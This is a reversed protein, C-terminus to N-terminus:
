KKKKPKAKAKAKDKAKVKKKKPGIKPTKNKPRLEDIVRAKLPEGMYRATKAVMDFDHAEVLSIATGKAGARGTRGIRHVYVDAKRPMDFNIVHSVNPVDIGRAAVDTALLIPVEGSKFRALAAIRKDQPMEGQLWCVPIDKSALFDKLMQLRERTKVFVVASTTTEQKLINVLLAQKHNMDDALHYWQHIKNKEKRSPNAEIVEPNNLIDHAFTKVGKGELTASFLLNQKRWRAEAAIQNVVTSFGMDLMRDAEDLILCEIDRCDAAEKEIHELLRGPTAVLIDLNKSLTEKDTGYNIGGTIVGCVIQTHKTIALAQEYVQLALERTPTLILIRTAGPQRRPYDLLFQCAPLLFAATKGTGTPASALIDRGDLAHPIVLEQISTPTDFGMDAVAHCLAEDLELEEFTM